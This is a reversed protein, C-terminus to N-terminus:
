HRYYSQLYTEYMPPLNNNQQIPIDELVLNEIKVINEPAFVQKHKIKHKISEIDKVSDKIEQHSFNHLKNQIFEPTGFYSLHWGCNHICHIDNIGRLDSLTYQKQLQKYDSYRFSRARYWPNKVKTELNYYYMDMELAIMKSTYVYNTNVIEKLITGRPIEDLDSVVIVDKEDLPLKDMGRTICNRQFRENQWQKQNPGCSKVKDLYDQSINKHPFDDVVIHIIKKHFQTFKDQNDKYYLSKPRGAHTHTSEVIVFWDVYKDLMHLRYTLLDLENYFMFCDIIWPQRTQVPPSLQKPIEINSQLTQCHKQFVYEITEPSNYKYFAHMGMADKNSGCEISFTAATDVSPMNIHLYDKNEQLLYSYIVDEHAPFKPMKYHITKAVLRCKKINRICFGGNGIPKKDKLLQYNHPQLSIIGEYIWPAGIWDYTFMTEDLPRLLLSDLQFLLVKDGKVINYFEESFMFQNYTDSSEFHSKDVESLHVNQLDYKELIDYWFQKNESSHIIQLGINTSTFYLMDLLVVELKFSSRNDILLLNHKQNPKIERIPKTQLIRNITRLHKTYRQEAEDIGENSKMIEHINSKEPLKLFDIWDYIIRESSYVTPNIAKLQLPQDLKEPHFRQNYISTIADCVGKSSAHSWSHIGDITTSVEEPEVCIGYSTNTTMATCKNTIVPTGHLQCEVSPMGFGESKSAFLLVDSLKYLNIISEESGFSNDTTIIKNRINLETALDHLKVVGNLGHDYTDHMLLYCRKKEQEDVTDLFLQFAKFQNIYSKRDTQCSNRAIMLCIFWDPHMNYQKRLDAKTADHKKKPIIHQILQSKFSYKQLVNVGFQSPTAIKDFYPLHRLNQADGHYGKEGPSLLRNDTFDSHVTLYLYKECPIKSVDYPEFMWIDQFVILKDAKFDDVFTHIKKWFNERQGCVYFQSNKYIDSTKYIGGTKCLYDYSYPKESYEYKGDMPRIEWCIFGFEITPDYKHLMEIISDLQISYGSITLPCYGSCIIKM